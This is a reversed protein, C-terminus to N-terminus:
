VFEMILTATPFWFVDKIGTSRPTRWPSGHEGKSKLIVNLGSMLIIVWGLYACNPHMHLGLTSGFVSRDHICNASSVAIMDLSTLPAWARNSMLMAQHLHVPMCSLVSLHEVNPMRLCSPFYICYLGFREMPSSYTGTTFIPSDNWM